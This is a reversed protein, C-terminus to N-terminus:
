AGGGMEKHSGMRGCLYRFDDGLRAVFQQWREGCDVNVFNLADGLNWGGRTHVSGECNGM